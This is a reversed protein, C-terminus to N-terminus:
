NDLRLSPEYDGIAFDVIYFTSRVDYYDDLSISTLEHYGNPMVQVRRAWEKAAQTKTM